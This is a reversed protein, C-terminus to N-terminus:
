GGLYENLSEFIMFAMRKQYTEDTLKYAEERNSLFGCEVLVATTPANWLLYIEEGVEKISRNNEPDLDVRAHEQIVQALDQSTQSNPSYFM